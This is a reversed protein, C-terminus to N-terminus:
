LKREWTEGVLEKGFGQYPESRTLVFGRRAYISRASSLFSNTWLVMKKYGKAKAFEICVDTLRGGLGLGRAQQTLILMRLQAVQKTKRVVFVAGVRQGDLEAIWCREFERDGRRMYDAVLGAVLGEFEGNLGYERAYIEGHQQVVWGMDGPLPERLIATPKASLEPPVLAKEITRMAHVLQEQQVPPVTALLAAAEERSKQQLPAFAKHGAPTLVIWGQRKDQPSPTRELWKRLEFRKLIRSLYGMDLGLTQALASATLAQATQPHHALEYLVRVDTLSLDGGLYPSLVGIRQTYFRNFHRLAKVHENSVSIAKNHM